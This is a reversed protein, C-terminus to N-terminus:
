ITIVLTKFDYNPTTNRRQDSFDQTTHTTETVSVPNTSGAEASDTQRLGFHTEASM